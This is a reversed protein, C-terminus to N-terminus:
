DLSLIQLPTPQPPQSALSPDDRIVTGIVHFTIELDRSDYM